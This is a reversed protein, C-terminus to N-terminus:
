RHELTKKHHFAKHARLKAKAKDKTRRIAQEKGLTRQLLDFHLRGVGRRVTELAERVTAALDFEEADRLAV